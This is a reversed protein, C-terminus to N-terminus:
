KVDVEFGNERLYDAYAECCTCQPNKYLTAQIPGASAPLPLALLTLLAGLWIFKKKM